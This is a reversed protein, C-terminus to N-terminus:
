DRENVYEYLWRCVEEGAFWALANLIVTENESNEDEEDNDEDDLSEEYYYDEDFYDDIGLIDAIEGKKIDDYNKLCNFSAVIDVVSEGLDDSYEDLLKMIDDMNDKAFAVTDSYYVFNGFGSDIGHEVIGEVTGYLEEDGGLNDVVNYILNSYEPREQAVKEVAIRYEQNKKDEENERRKNYDTEVETNDNESEELSENDGNVWEEVSEKVLKKVFSEDIPQDDENDDELEVAIDYIDNDKLYQIDEDTFEHSSRYDMIAYVLGEDQWQWSNEDHGNDKYQKLQAEIYDKLSAENLINKVCESVVRKLNEQEKM